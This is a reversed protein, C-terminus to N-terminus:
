IVNNICENVNQTEGHLCKALLKESGLDSHSFIPAIVNSVAPDINIKQKYTSKGSIKDKQYKCWSDPRRPCFQHRKESESNNTSHHLVAAVAKRMAYLNSTNQRIAMGFHNQLTNMVKETLRGKGGSIGKGDSLKKKKYDRKISRLRSGVRKQVHGVCEGKKIQHGPYPNLKNIEEYSKSDGDGIYFLYRLNFLAVSRSFMRKLGNVEMAGASGEHNISCNHEAKWNTYEKTGKKHEWRDCQKCKKSMVENDICKGNSILTVVGNLSAYGRKQWSGDGSVKTNVIEQDNNSVKDHVEKAGKKMSEHSVEVYSNHVSSNIDDFTSKAMPPPMNMWRCFTEIGAYGQGNERFAIVTRKNIDYGKRGSTMEVKKCEQSSCVKKKWRCEVCSVLFFQALGMKEGNLHEINVLAACVPCQGLMSFLSMFLTSNIIFNFDRSETVPATDTPPEPALKNASASATSSKSSM